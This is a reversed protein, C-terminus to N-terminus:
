EFLFHFVNEAYLKIQRDPLRHVIMRRRSMGLIAYRDLTEVGGVDHETACIGNRDVIGRRNFCEILPGYFFEMLVAINGSGRRQNRQGINCLRLRLVVEILGNHM